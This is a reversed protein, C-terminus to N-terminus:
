SQKNEGNAGCNRLPNLEPNLVIATLCHPPAGAVTHTLYSCPSCYRTMEQVVIAQEEIEDDSYPYMGLYEGLVGLRAVMRNRSVLCRVDNKLQYMGTFNRLQATSLHRKCCLRSEVQLKAMGVRIRRTLQDATEFAGDNLAGPAGLGLESEIEDIAQQFFTNKEWHKRAEQVVVAKQQRHRYLASRVRGEIGAAGRALMVCTGVLLAALILPM